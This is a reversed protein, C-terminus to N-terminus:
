VPGSDEPGIIHYSAASLVVIVRVIESTDPRVNMGDVKGWSWNHNSAYSTIVTVVVFPTSTVPHFSLDPFPRFAVATDPVPFGCYTDFPNLLPFGPIRNLAFMIDTGDTADVTRDDLAVSVVSNM